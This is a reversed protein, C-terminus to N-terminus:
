KRECQEHRPGCEPGRRCLCAPAAKPRSKWSSWHLGEAEAGGDDLDVGAVGDRPGDNASLNVRVMAFLATLSPKSAIKAIAAIDLCQVVM